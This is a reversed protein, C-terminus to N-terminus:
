SPGRGGSGTPSRTLEACRRAEVEFPNNAYGRYLYSLWMKPWGHQQQWTHCLEHAILDEDSLMAANRLLIFHWVTFGDFRRFRPLRYLWPTVLLRVRDTRVPVPYCDLRDLRRQAREIAELQGPRRGSAGLVRDILWRRM